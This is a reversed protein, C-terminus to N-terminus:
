RTIPPYVSSNEECTEDREKLRQKLEISLISAMVNVWEKEFGDVFQIHISEVKIGACEKRNRGM